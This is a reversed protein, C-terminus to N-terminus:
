CPSFPLYCACCSCTVCSTCLIISQRLQSRFAADAMTAFKAPVLQYSIGLTGYSQLLFVVAVLPLNFMLFPVVLARFKKSVLLRPQSHLGSGFLLYGSIVTLVPVTCRFVANQFFARILDFTHPGVEDIPVYLPTHLVVIGFIMGFRM